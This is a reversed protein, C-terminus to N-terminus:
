KWNLIKEILINVEDMPGDGAIVVDYVELFRQKLEPTESNLFWIKIINDYAFGDAMHVDGLADGLLLVNKRHTIDQYFPFQHAMSENKNFSHIIPKRVDIAKGADDRIFANSVIHINDSLKEFRQLCFSIGDYWLGSASFIILPIDHERLMRFFIEHHPRLLIKYSQMAEQIIAKTLWSSILLAFETERWEQMIPVKKSLPITSDIEVPYYTAFNKKAQLTFAEGLYWWEDLISEISYRPVGDVFATTLTRDFDAVVHFRDKWWAVFQAITQELKKEDSIYIDTM